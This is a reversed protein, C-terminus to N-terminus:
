RIFTQRVKRVGEQVNRHVRWWLQKMQATLSTILNAVINQSEEYHSVVRMTPQSGLGDVWDFLNVLVDLADQEAAKMEERM